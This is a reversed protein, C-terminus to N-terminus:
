GGRGGVGNVARGGAGPKGGSGPSKGSASQKGQVTSSGTGGTKSTVAARRPQDSGRVLVHPLKELGTSNSAGPQTTDVKSSRTPTQPQEVDGSLVGGRPQNAGDKPPSSAPKRPVVPERAPEPPNSAHSDLPAARDAPVETTHSSNATTAVVPACPVELGVQSGPDDLDATTVFPSLSLSVPLRGGGAPSRPDTSPAEPSGPTPGPETSEPTQGPKIDGPILGPSAVQTKQAPSPGLGFGGVLSSLAFASISGIMAISGAWAIARRREM